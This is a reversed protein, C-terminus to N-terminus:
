GPFVEKQRKALLGELAQRAQILAEPLAREVPTSLGIGTRLVEPEIGVVVISPPATDLLRMTELLVLANGEHSTAPARARWMALEEGRLVHVTGPAAGLGVADIVLVGSRRELYGMLALGQTGGDIFEVGERPGEGSLLELLRLGAGDDGLLLNGLGLVLVRPEPSGATM